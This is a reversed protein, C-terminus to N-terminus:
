RELLAPRQSMEHYCIVDECFYHAVMSRRTAGERNIASGGHLLNAHWILLDGPQATFYRREFDHEQLVSEVKDEYRKNSEAGITLPTNGSPYDQTTLYPLRHSGPYYFLPGCDEDIPELAVWIAILHGQPQTSMHISDSHARQESGRIFNITQFPIVPKGMLFNLLRLLEPDRFFQQDAIPSYRYSDMIKRGTYNFGVKSSHILTDIEANLADVRDSDFFGRLIMYGEHPFNLIQQQTSESFQQLGDHHRLKEAADAQDLWPIDAYQEQFDKAGLPAYISKHLGYKKYLRRNHQLRDSNLLNNLIYVLKLQRLFGTNREFLRRLSAM